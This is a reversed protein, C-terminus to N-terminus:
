SAEQDDDRAGKLLRLIRRCRLRHRNRLRRELAAPELAAVRGLTQGLRSPQETSASIGAVLMALSDCSDMVSKVEAADKGASFASVFCFGLSVHRAEDRAVARYLQSLPDGEFGKALIEFEDLALGELLTHLLFLALPDRFKSLTVSLASSSGNKEALTGGVRCAYNAFAESHAAEDDVQRALALRAQRETALPLLRAATILGVEENYSSQSTLRWALRRKADSLTSGAAGFDVDFARIRVSIM